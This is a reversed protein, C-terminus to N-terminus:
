SAGGHKSQDIMRQQWSQLANLGLYVLGGILAIGIEVGALFYVFGIPRVRALHGYKGTASLFLLILVFGAFFGFVIGRFFMGWVADSLPLM